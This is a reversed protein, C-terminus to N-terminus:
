APRAHKKRRMMAPVLLLGVADVVAHVVICALLDNTFIFLSSLVLAALLVTLLHSLGWRFHAAVFAALSVTVAVSQSGFIDKGIGIAYGRYLIEETVAATIVIFVRFWFSLGALKHFLETREVSTSGLAKQVYQVLPIAALMVLTALAAAGFHVASPAQLGIQMRWPDSGYAALALVVIALLWLALRTSLSLPDVRLAKCALLLLPAGLLSIVLGITLITQM